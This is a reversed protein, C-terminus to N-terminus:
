NDEECTKETSLQVNLIKKRMKLIKVIAEQIRMERLRIIRENDEECTKETSLQLRGILNLRGRTQLKGNKQIAFSNNIYFITNEKFDSPRSASPEYLLVQRKTNRAAVLTWLNRRLEQEPLETALRLNEMALKDNRRKEWCFLISM